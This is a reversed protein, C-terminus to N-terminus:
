SHGFVPHTKLNFSKLNLYKKRLWNYVFIHDLFRFGENDMGEWLVKRGQVSTPFVYFYLGVRELAKKIMINWCTKDKGTRRSWVLVAHRYGNDMAHFLPMQYSRPTFKYPVVIKISM